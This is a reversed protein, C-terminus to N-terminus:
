EWSSGLMHGAMLFTTKEAGERILMWAGQQWGEWGDVSGRRWPRGWEPWM